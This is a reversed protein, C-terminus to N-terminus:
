LAPVVGRFSRMGIALALNLSSLGPLTWSNESESSSKSLAAGALSGVGMLRLTSNAESRAFEDGDLVPSKMSILGDGVGDGVADGGGCYM